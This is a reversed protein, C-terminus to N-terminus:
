SAACSLLVKSAERSNALAFGREAQELPVRHTILPTFLRPEASFASLVTPWVAAPASFSSTITHRRRLFRAADFTAPESHVGVIVLTGRPKLLDLGQQIAPAAGTAEFVLDFGAGAHDNLRARGDGDRLDVRQPFGLAGLVALRPEDNLGAITVEAGALRAFIAIGQGITGPGIVLVRAGAQVPSSRVAEASIAMPETLAGLPLDVNAPLVLCNRAPVSVIRTFAGDRMVGLSRRDACNEDDRSRCATCAECVVPPRVTVKDGVAIGQVADGLAVVSGSFEHGLTIPLYPALHRFGPSWHEIHLDSGCIGAVAVEILVNDRTPPGPHEVDCLAIGADPRVKRLALM